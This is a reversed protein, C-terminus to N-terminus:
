EHDLVEKIDDIIQEIQIAVLAIGTIAFMVFMAVVVFVILYGVAQVIIGDYKKVIEINEIFDNKFWKVTAQVMILGFVAFFVDGLFTLLKNQKM